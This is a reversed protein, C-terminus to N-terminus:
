RTYKQIIYLTIRYPIRIINNIYFSNNFRYGARARDWTQTHIINYTCQRSVCDWLGSRDRDELFFFFVMTGYFGTTAGM